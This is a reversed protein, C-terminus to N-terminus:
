APIRALLADAALMARSDIRHQPLYRLCEARLARLAYDLDSYTPLGANNTHADANAIAEAKADKVRKALMSSLLAPDSM